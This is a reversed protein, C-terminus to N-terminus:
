GIGRIPRNVQRSFRRSHRDEARSRPGCCRRAAKSTTSIERPPNTALMERIGDVDGKDALEFITTV